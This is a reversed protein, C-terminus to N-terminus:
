VILDVIRIKMIPVHHVGTIFPYRIDGRGKKLGVKEPPQMMFRDVWLQTSWTVLLQTFRHKDYCDFGLVRFFADM